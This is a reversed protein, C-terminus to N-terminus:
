YCIIQISRRHSVGDVLWQAAVNLRIPAFSDFRNSGAFHSTSAAKELATIWQLMQRKISIRDPGRDAKRFCDGVENRAFLKLRMQSNEIYFTHKSVDKARREKKREEQEQENKPIGVMEKADPGEVHDLPNTNTSPDVVRGGGARTLSRSSESHDSENGDDAASDHEDEDHDIHGNVHGSHNRFHLADSIRHRISGLTSREPHEQAFQLQQNNDGDLSLEEKDPVHLLNLGQRYYRKPREIKFDSDLM